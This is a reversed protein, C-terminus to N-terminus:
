RGSATQGVLEGTSVAAGTIFDIADVAQGYDGIHTYAIIKKM